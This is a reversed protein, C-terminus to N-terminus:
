ANEKMIHKVADIAKKLRKQGTGSIIVYVAQMEELERKYINLFYERRHPHERQPDFKWPLDIDPLLFLDATFTKLRRTMLPPLKGYKHEYWVKLVILSTDYFLLTKTKEEMSKELRLQGEVINLLDHRNYPRKLKDIYDRAYEPVWNTRFHVALAKALTSKGTSEPGTIIVKRLM